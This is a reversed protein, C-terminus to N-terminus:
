LQVLFILIILLGFPNSSMRGPSRDDRTTLTGTFTWWKPKFSMKERMNESGTWLLFKINEADELVVIESNM